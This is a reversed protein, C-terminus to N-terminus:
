RNCVSAVTFMESINGGFITSNSQLMIRYMDGTRITAYGKQGTATEHKEKLLWYYVGESTRVTDLRLTSDPTGLLIDVTKGEIFEPKWRVGIMDGFCFIEGGAPYILAVPPKAYPDYPAKAVSSAPESVATKPIDPVISPKEIIAQPDFKIKVLPEVYVCPTRASGNLPIDSVKLYNDKLLSELVPALNENFMLDKLAESLDFFKSQDSYNYVFVHDYDYYDKSVLSCQDYDSVSFKDDNEDLFDIFIKTALHQANEKDHYLFDDQYSESPVAEAVTEQLPIPTLEESSTEILFIAVFGGIMIAILTSVTLFSTKKQPSRIPPVPIAPLETNSDVPTSSLGNIASGKKNENIEPQM